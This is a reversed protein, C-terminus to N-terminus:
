TVSNASALALYSQVVNEWSFQKVRERARFVLKEKLGQQTLVKEIMGALAKEDEPPVLLGCGDQIIEPIGGVNTAIVPTESAMAELVVLGFAEKRSPVAFMESGAMLSKMEDRNAWGWFILKPSKDKSDEAKNVWNINSYEALKKYEQLEPGDGALIIDFNFGKKILLNSARMLIDFGKTRVFRGAAFIYPRNHRFARIEQFETIDLGNHIARSKQTMEPCLARGKQLIDSSCATVFDASKCTKKFLWMNFRNLFPLGEVDDGHLTVILKFPTLLRCALLYLSGIGVFHLYILDPKKQKILYLLRVFSFPALFLGLIYKFLIKLNYNAPVLNPFLTRYAPINEVVESRRLNRPYRETMVTVDHGTRKFEKALRFAVEQVGGRVPLFSSPFIIIKM